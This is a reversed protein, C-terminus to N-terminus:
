SIFFFMGPFLSATHGDPGMGLLLVDFKPWTCNPFKGKLKEEYEDAAQEVSLIFAM